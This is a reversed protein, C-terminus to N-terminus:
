LIFPVNIITLAALDFRFGHLFALLTQATGAGSFASYNLIYFAIRLLLYLGMLLGLRRLLLKLSLDFM